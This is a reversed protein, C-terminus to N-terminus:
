LLSRSKVRGPDHASWLAFTGDEGKPLNVGIAAPFILWILGTAGHGFVATLLHLPVAESYRGAQYLRVIEQNLAAVDGAQTDAAGSAAICGM